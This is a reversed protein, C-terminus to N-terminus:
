NTDIQPQRKTRLGNPRLSIASQRTSAASPKRLEQHLSDVMKKVGEPIVQMYVDTTTPLRAHRLLGQTDKPTGHNQSLTAVTRRIVQFTLKPLCLIERLRGLVRKRYNNPDLFGGDRNPFIFADPAADPCIAKWALLDSVMLPPLPITGLSKTTKGWNRLKGRYVTEQLTLSSGQPDFCRWRLAFLESPRLAESMELEVLIRDEADLLELAQRLQDWTLTTKDSERLQMPVKLRAAPDKTLFDQDVAEEFIDRLYARMQLVTDRACTRALKDVHLQLTFRDFNILPFEGLDDLLNTQILSKKNKATEEKWDGEKLPFYRNRVFWGFTISSDNMVHSNTKFWGKRKAVERALAERAQKKTMSSRPGLIIPKRQTQRKGTVPDKLSIRPYGYWKKGRLIVYGTGYTAKNM